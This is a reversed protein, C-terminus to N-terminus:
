RSARPSVLAVSRACWCAALFGPRGVAMAMATTALDLACICSCPSILAVLVGPILAPLGLEVVIVRNITTTLMVVVAGIAAQVFGLRTLQWWSMGVEATSAAVGSRIVTSPSPAVATGM